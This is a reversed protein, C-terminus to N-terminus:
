LADPQTSIVRGTRDDHQDGVQNGCTGALQDAADNGYANSSIQVYQETEGPPTLVTAYVELTRSHGWTREVRYAHLFGTARDVDVITFDARALEFLVCEFADSPTTAVTILRNRGGTTTCAATVLLFLALGATCWM